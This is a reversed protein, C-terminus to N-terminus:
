ARLRVAAGTTLLMVTPSPEEQRREASCRFRREGRQREERVERHGVRVVRTGPDSRCAIRSAFAAAPASVIVNALAIVIAGVVCSGAIVSATVISPVTPAEVVGTTVSSPTEAGAPPRPKLTSAPPVTM